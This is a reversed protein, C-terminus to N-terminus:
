WRLLLKGFNRNEEMARHAEVVDTAPYVMDVVPRLAGSRLLPLAQKEFFGVLEAKEPLSRPRLLTGRITGRRAMLARLDIEARAGGPVGVVVQRGGMALVRQNGALYPGGVLDLIVDVGRGETAELVREPWGDGGAIAHTLGLDLAAKLKAPTRSTGIVSAGWTRGLQIAATGVGSGAAHVLLTEGHKLGAQLVVADFATFFVEPVAGAEVLDLRDPVATASGEDCRVIEAYAGGGVIGMVRDGVSWRSVEAGVAAVTGSFEMGPIDGPAGPPVAYGGRRQLLDARNLGSAAVRVLIEAPGQEPTPVERIELVEPGGPETIIVARM